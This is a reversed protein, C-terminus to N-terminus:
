GGWPRDGGRRRAAELWTKSEPRGTFDRSTATCTGSISSSCMDLRACRYSTVKARVVRPNDRDHARPTWSCCRPWRFTRALRGNMLRDKFDMQGTRRWARSLRHGRRRTSSECPQFSKSASRTGSRWLGNGSATNRLIRALELIDDYKDDANNLTSESDVGCVGGEDSSEEDTDGEEGVAQAALDPPSTCLRAQHANPTCRERLLLVDSGTPKTKKQKQGKLSDQSGRSQQKTTKGAEM